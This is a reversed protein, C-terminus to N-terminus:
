GESPKGCRYSRVALLLLGAAICMGLRGLELQMLASCQAQGDPIAWPAYLFALSCGITLLEECAWWVACLMVLVSRVRWVLALLLALRGLAGCVNWVRAQAEPPFWAWGYHVLTTLGILALGLIANRGNARHAM